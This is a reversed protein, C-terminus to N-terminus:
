RKRQVGDTQGQVASKIWHCGARSGRHNVTTRNVMDITHVALPYNRRQVTIQVQVPRWPATAM